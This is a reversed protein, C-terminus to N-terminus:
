VATKVSYPNGDFFSISNSHKLTLKHDHTHDDYFTDKFRVTRSQYPDMHYLEAQTNRDGTNHVRVNKVYGDPVIQNVGGTIYGERDKGKPVRDFHSNM